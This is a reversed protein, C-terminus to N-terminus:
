KKYAKALALYKWRDGFKKRRIYKSIILELLAVKISGCGIQRGVHECIDKMTAWGGVWEYKFFRIIELQLKNM